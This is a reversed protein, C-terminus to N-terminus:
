HLINAWSQRTTALMTDADSVLLEISGAKRGVAAQIATIWTISNLRMNQELVRTNAAVPEISFVRGTPGVAQAAILSFGGIHAGIDVVVGGAPLSRLVDVIGKEAQRGFAAYLDGLSELRVCLVQGFQNRVAVERGKLFRLRRWSLEDREKNLYRVHAKVFEFTRMLSRYLLTSITTHLPAESM